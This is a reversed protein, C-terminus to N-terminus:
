YLREDNEVDSMKEMIDKTFTFRASHLDLHFKSWILGKIIIIYFLFTNEPNKTSIKDRSSSSILM